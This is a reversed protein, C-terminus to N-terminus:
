KKHKLDAIYESAELAAMCGAGAATVAQMYRYDHVDGAGFVGEVNTKVQDKVILHGRDDLEVQGILFDTSPKHGIAVFAGACKLESIKDTLINKLKVGELKNEGLFEEVVSDWVFKINETKKAKDELIAQTKLKNRRHIVTVTKCIKALYLAERMATDGGGIIIVDKGKFFFGDCTACASVGKGILKRESEIGLWKANAGTAIVVSKSLFEKEEIFLKLPKKSFDVKSVNEDIFEVGLLEAQKRMKNMLEPGQIGGPFGPFDEVDTTIMLQGGPATGAIVLTKLNARISYISATLGAPGSGVIIVDYEKENM